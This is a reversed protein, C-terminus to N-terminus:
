SELPYDRFLRVLEAENRVQMKDLVRTRHKAVTQIGINLKGSITKMDEGSLLFGMM